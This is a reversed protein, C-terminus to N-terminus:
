MDLLRRRLVKESAGELCLNRDRRIEAPQDLIKAPRNFHIGDDSTMYALRSKETDNKETAAGYWLRFKGTDPDREVTFFPQFIRDQKSTVIPNPIAPDRKPHNIVRSLNRSTEIEEDDIFLHPGPLASITKPHSAPGPHYTTFAEKPEAAFVEFTVLLLLLIRLPRLSAFIAFFFSNLIKEKRM